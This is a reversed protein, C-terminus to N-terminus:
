YMLIIMYFRLTRSIERKSKGEGEKKEEGYMDPNDNVLGWRRTLGQCSNLIDGERNKEM